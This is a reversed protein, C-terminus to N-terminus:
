LRTWGTTLKVVLIDLGFQAFLAGVPHNELSRRLFM